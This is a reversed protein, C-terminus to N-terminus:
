GGMQNLKMQQKDSEKLEKKTKTENDNSTMQNRHRVLAGEIKAEYTRISM